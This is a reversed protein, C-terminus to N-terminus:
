SVHLLISQADVVQLHHDSEDIPENNATFSEILFM